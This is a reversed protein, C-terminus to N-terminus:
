IMGFAVFNVEGVDVDDEVEAAAARASHAANATIFANSGTAFGLADNVTGSSSTIATPYFAHFCKDTPDWRIVYGNESVGDSIVRIDVSDDKFYKTIGTIEVGTTNYNTINCKGALMGYNRSIREVGPTDLTVTAAYSAM